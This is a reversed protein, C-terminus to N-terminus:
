QMALAKIDAKLSHLQTDLSCDFVGGDTEIMCQGEALTADKIVELEMSQPVVFFLTEKQELVAPYDEKSVHILFQKSGEAQELANRILHLIIDKKEILSASTVHSVVEVIVDVLEQEMQNYREIYEAERRTREEELQERERELEAQAALSGEQYGQQYGQQSGEQYGQEKLAEAEAEAQTRMQEAEARASQLLQEAEARAKELEEAPDPQPEVEIQPASLGAMFSGAIEEDSMGSDRLLQRRIEELKETIVDNYDIVRVEEEKIQNAKLLNSLL